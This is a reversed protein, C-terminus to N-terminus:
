SSEYKDWSRFNCCIIMNRPILHEHTKHEDWASWELHNTHTGKFQNVMSLHNYDYRAHPFSNYLTRNNTVFEGHHNRIKMMCLHISNQNHTKVLLNIYIWWKLKDCKSNQLNKMDLTLPYSSVQKIDFFCVWWFVINYILNEM